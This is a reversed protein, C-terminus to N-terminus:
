SFPKATLGFNKIRNHLPSAPGTDRTHSALFACIKTAFGLHLGAAYIRSTAYVFSACILRRSTSTIFPTPFPLSGEPNDYVRYIAFM